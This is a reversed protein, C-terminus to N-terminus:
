YYNVTEKLGVTAPSPTLRTGFVTDSYKALSAPLTQYRVYGRLDSQISCFPTKDGVVDTSTCMLLPPEESM